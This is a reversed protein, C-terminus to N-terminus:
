EVGVWPGWFGGYKEVATVCSQPDSKGRQPAFGTARTANMRRDLAAAVQAASGDGRRDRHEGPDLELEFLCFPKCRGLGPTCCDLHRDCSCQASYILV